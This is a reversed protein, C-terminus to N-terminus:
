LNILLSLVMSVILLGSLVLLIVQNRRAQRQRADVQVKQPRSLKGQRAM